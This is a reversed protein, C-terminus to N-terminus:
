ISLGIIRVFDGHETKKKVLLIPSSFPNNSPRILGKHLMEQVQREIEEKQFHAYRYPRVNVPQSEDKLPIRHDFNREPPLGQPEDFIFSYETIIQDIDPHNMGSEKIEQHKSEKANPPTSPQVRIAYCQAGKSWIRTITKLGVEKPLKENGSKLKITGNGWTFEM